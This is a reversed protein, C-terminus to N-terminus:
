SILSHVNSGVCGTIISWYRFCLVSEVFSSLYDLCPIRWSYSYSPLLLSAYSVDM